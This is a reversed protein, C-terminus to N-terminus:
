VWAGCATSSAPPRPGRRPRRHLRRDGRRAGADARGRPPRLPRLRAAPRRAPRAADRRRVAVILPPLHGGSSVTTRGTAADIFVILVTTFELPDEAAVFRDLRELADRPSAAELAYARAATRVTGMRAAAKLGRGVVDGVVMAVRGDALDFLDYWDGGVETGDQGPLYRAAAELGPVTPLAAPLLSRQLSLAAEQAAEFLESQRIARAARDAVLELLVLDHGDYQRMLTSVILM